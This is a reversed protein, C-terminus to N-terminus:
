DVPRLRVNKLEGVFFHNLDSTAGFTLPVDTSIPGGFSGSDVISNDVSLRCTNGDWTMRLTHWNGDTIDPGSMVSVSSDGDGLAGLVRGRNLCIQYGETKGFSSSNAKSILRAFPTGEMYDTDPDTRVQVSLDFGGQGSIVDHHPIHAYNESTSRFVQDQNSSIWEGKVVLGHNGGKNDFIYNGHGEDLRWYAPMTRENAVLGARVEDDTVTINSDGAAYEGSYPVRAACWGNEASNASVRHRHTEGNVTIETYMDIEDSNTQTAVIAGRVLTYVKRSPDAWIARYHGSGDGWGTSLDVGIGESLGNVSKNSITIFGTGGRLREYWSAGDTASSFESYRSKAFRYDSSEGNVFWNYVRNRGWESFVYNEPYEWGREESYDRMFKAAEYMSDDITLQSHRIPTLLGGLSGVGLGLAGLQLAERRDPQALEDVSSSDDRGDGVVSPGNTPGDVFPVPVSALDVWAALHVFALGGFLATFLALQGAFRVQIASLLLFYWGYVGVLLWEPAHRRYSTWLAWGMHGLALFLGLGFLFIPGVITGLDGSVISTTEAIGETTLLFNVGRELETKFAPVLSRLALIGLVSGAVAVGAVGRSSVRTRRAGESLILLGAIGVSLLVPAVIVAMSHWGLLVHALVAVLTGLSVGALLPGGSQLTSEGARLASTVLGVAFLGLPLLLLPGADWALVQGTVGVALAGVWAWTRRERIDRGVVSVVALATLVLWPYDFAHHDAFGLGTRFAHAPTVALLVVAVIGVRKDDTLRVALAYVLLATVVASVVPFWALVGGVASEGGLLASVWWLTTVMLPEGHSVGAPLASLVSLDFPNSSVALLEHVLYRYAYPDNGSLVVDDGRFVSRFPLVRFLVVLALAAVVGAVELRDFDFSPLSVAAESDTAPETVDDGDLARRVADSDALAYEDDVEEVVGRSVLEGFVGSDLPVDDFTWTDTDEDVAVVERLPAELDPKDSLLDDTAARVDTM